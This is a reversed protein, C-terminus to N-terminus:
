LLLIDMFKLTGGGSVLYQINVNGDGRINSIVILRGFCSLASLRGACKSNSSINLQYLLSGSNHTAITLLKKKKM